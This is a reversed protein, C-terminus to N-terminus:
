NLAIARPLSYRSGLQYTAVLHLKRKTSHDGGIHMQGTARDLEILRHESPFGQGNIGAWTDVCIGPSEDLATFCCGHHRSRANARFEAASRFENAGCVYYACLLLSYEPDHAVQRDEIANYNQSHACIGIAAIAKKATQKQQPQNPSHTSTNVTNATTVAASSM